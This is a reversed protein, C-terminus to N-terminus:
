PTVGGNLRMRVLAAGAPTLPFAVSWEGMVHAGPVYVDPHQDTFAARDAPPVYTDDDVDVEVLGAFAVLDRGFSDGEPDIDVRDSVCSGMPDATDVHGVWAEPGDHQQYGNTWVLLYDWGPFHAVAADRLAVARTLYEAVGTTTNM